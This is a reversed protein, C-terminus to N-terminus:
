RRGELGLRRRLDAVPVRAERCKARLEAQMAQDELWEAVRVMPDREVPEGENSELWLAARRMDDPSPRATM